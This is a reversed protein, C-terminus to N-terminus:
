YLRPDAKPTLEEKLRQMLTRERIRRRIRASFYGTMALYARLKAAIPIPRTYIGRLHETALTWSSLVRDPPIAPDYWQAEGRKSSRALWEKDIRHLRQFYLPEPVEVFSGLLRLEAVLVLDASPYAGMGRTRRLAEARILGFVFMPYQKPPRQLLERFTPGSVTLFDNTASHGTNRDHRLYRDQTQVPAHERVRTAQSANAGDGDDARTHARIDTTDHAASSTTSPSPAPAAFRIHRRVTIGADRPILRGDFSMLQRQPYVLVLSEPGHEFCKLCRELYTPAIIDDHAMWKFYPGRCQAFTFNFNQAAGLNRDHRHYRVRSDSRVYKRCISETEDTSANDAIVLEFDTMTQNLVSELAEEIVSQGNRVPMGVTVLPKGDMTEGTISLQAEGMTKCFVWTHAEFLRGHDRILALALDRPSVPGRM